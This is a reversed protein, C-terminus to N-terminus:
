AKRRSRGRRPVNGALFNLLWRATRLLRADDGAAGVLQVGLPMHAEGELVPLSLSPLGSMTWLTCFSPDGTTTPDKPAVGISAPTLIADYVTFVEALGINLLRADALAALYSRASVRSGEELLARLTASVAAGDREAVPGLNHAMDAAMIARHAGWMDALRGPLEIEQLAGALRRALEEFAARTSDDAKDWIPTRVFALRPPLPPAESSVRQFAPSAVARTDPDAPDHGAIVDLLLAIDEVSRAFAGVHDLARSLPLVGARSVLGHSPKAGFVGCYAAPLITSGNTQTGIALPVMGAAVAAASGSSSGGPTREPDRPNRTPGPHLAGFEATVTKGLIVAGAARLKSVVGADRLPRRGAFLPSGYETPYDETDVIDKIAVPVGHLSGSPLGDRRREDLARAQSLVHEPDLHAFARIRDEIAAIRELCARALQEASIAGSAIDSAAQAATRTWLEGEEM